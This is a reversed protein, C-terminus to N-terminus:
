GDNPDPGLPVSLEHEMVQRPQEIRSIQHLFSHTAQREFADTARIHNEVKVRDSLDRCWRKV